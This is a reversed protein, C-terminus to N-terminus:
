KQYEKVKQLLMKRNNEDDLYMKAKELSFEENEYFKALIDNLMTNFILYSASKHETIEKEGFYFRSDKIYLSEYRNDKGLPFLHLAHALEESSIAVELPFFEGRVNAFGINDLVLKDRVAFVNVYKEPIDLYKSYTFADEKFLFFHKKLALSSNKDDGYDFTNIPQSILSVDKTKFDMIGNKLQKTEEENWVRYLKLM